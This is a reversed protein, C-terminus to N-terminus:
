RSGTTTVRFANPKSRYGQEEVVLCPTNARQKYAYARVTATGAPVYRALKIGVTVKGNNNTRGYGPVFAAGVVIGIGVNVDTAPQTVPRPTDIGLGAPDQEAPRTVLITARVKEGRSYRKDFPKIDVHLTNPTVYDLAQDRMSCAGAPQTPALAVVSAALVLAITLSTQKM